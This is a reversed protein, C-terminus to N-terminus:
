QYDELKMQKGKGTDFFDYLRTQHTHKEDFRGCTPCVSHRKWWTKKVTTEKVKKWFKWKSM